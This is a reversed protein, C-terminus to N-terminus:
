QARLVAGLKSELAGIVRQSFDTLQADTLTSERSQFTIRVLLSYRGAPVNKGRFLDVADLSTVERINLARIAGVVDSFHTGDDLLISFDREVAPFRPIPQYRRSETATDIAAYLPELELEALFVPQRLKLEDALRRALEGATGIDRFDPQHNARNQIAKLSVVASRSSQLWGAAADKWAFGGALEGTLDLDGKLDAFSFERPDEVLNKERALGTAGLTVVPTEVAESGILAYRRGIEFLRLNRQGRNLNWELAGAMTVLGSSKLVNAEESL